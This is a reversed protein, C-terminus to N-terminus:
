FITGVTLLIAMIMINSVQSILMINWSAKENGAGVTFGLYASVTIGLGVSLMYNYLFVGIVAAHAALMSNDKKGDKYSPEDATIM